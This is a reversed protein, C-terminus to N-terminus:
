RGQTCDNKCRTSRRTLAPEQPSCPTMEEGISKRMCVPRIGASVSRPQTASHTRRWAGPTAGMQKSFLKTLHSQDTFGVAIAIQSLPMDSSLLMNRATEVRRQLLWRHPSESTTTKFGRAFYGRSLRCEGALEALSIAEEIRESKLENSRREQRPALGGCACEPARIGGFSHAFHTTLALAAYNLFLRDARQPQTLAPLFTLGLNHTVPDIAGGRRVLTEIPQCNNEQALNDLEARTVCFHLSHFPTPFHLEPSQELDLVSVSRKPYPDVRVPRANLRLEHFPIDRLQLSVIIAKESPIPTSPRSLGTDCRLRTM